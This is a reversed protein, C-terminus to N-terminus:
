VKVLAHLSHWSLCFSKGLYIWMRNGPVSNYTGSMIFPMKHHLQVSTPLNNQIIFTPGMYDGPGKYSQRSLLFLILFPLTFLDWDLRALKLSLPIPGLVLSICSAELFQLPLIFSKRRTSGSPFCGQWCGSKLEMLCVWKPSQVEPTHTHKHSCIITSTISGNHVKIINTILHWYTNTLNRLITCQTSFRVILLYFSKKFPFNENIKFFHKMNTNLFNESRGQKMHINNERIM